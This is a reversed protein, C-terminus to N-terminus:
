STTRLSNYTDITRIACIGDVLEKKSKNDSKIYRALHPSNTKHGTISTYISKDFGSNVANSLFNRRGMHSSVKEAISIREETGTRRDFILEERTLGITEFLRKLGKNYASISIKPLIRNTSLFYKYVIELAIQNLPVSIKIIRKRSGKTQYFELNKTRFGNEEVEILNNAKTMRDLEGFRCGIFSCLLFVSKVLDLQADDIKTNYIMLLESENLVIPDSYVPQEVDFKHFPNHSVKEQKILWNWFSRLRIFIECIYNASRDKLSRIANTDTYLEPYSARIKMENEVFSKFSKLWQYNIESIRVKYESKQILSQYKEYRVIANIYTKTNKIKPTSFGKDAIYEHMQCVLLDANLATDKGYKLYNNVHNNFKKSTLEKNGQLQLYVEELLMKRQIILDKVTKQEELTYPCAKINRYCDNSNDWFRRDVWIDSKHFLDVDRGDILRFRVKIMQKDEVSTKVIAKIKM